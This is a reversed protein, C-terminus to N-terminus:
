GLFKNCTFVRKFTEDDAKKFLVFYVRSNQEDLIEGIAYANPLYGGSRLTHHAGSFSHRIFHDFGSPRCVRLLKKLIRCKETDNQTNEFRYLYYSARIRNKFVLGASLMSVLILGSLLWTVNIKM